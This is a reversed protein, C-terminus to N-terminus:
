PHAELTFLSAGDGYGGSPFYVLCLFLPELSPGSPQGPTSNARQRGSKPSSPWVGRPRSRYRWNGTQAGNAWPSPSGGPTQCGFGQPIPRPHTALSDPLPASQCRDTQGAAHLGNPCPLKRGIQPCVSRNVRVRAVTLGLVAPKRIEPKPAFGPGPGKGGSSGSSLAWIPTELLSRDGYSSESRLLVRGGGNRDQRTWGTRSGALKQLM